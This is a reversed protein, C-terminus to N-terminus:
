AAPPPEDDAVRWEFDAPRKGAVAYSVEVRLITSEHVHVWRDGPHRAGPEVDHYARNELQFRVWPDDPARHTEIWGLEVPDERGALYVAVVPEYGEPAAAALQDRDFKVRRWIAHRDM